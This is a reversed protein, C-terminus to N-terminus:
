DGQRTELVSDPFVRIANEVAHLQRSLSTAPTSTVCRGDRMESIIETSDTGGYMRAQLEAFGPLLKRTLFPNDAKPAAFPVIKAVAKGEDTVVIPEQETAQRVWHVTDEQLQHISIATM